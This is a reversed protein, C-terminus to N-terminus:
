QDTRNKAREPDDSADARDADRSFGEELHVRTDSIERVADAELVFPDDPEDWGLRTKISDIADPEPEVRVQEDECTAVSGIVTGDAREVLKGVDEDTFTACM